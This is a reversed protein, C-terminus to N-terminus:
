LRKGNAAESVLEIFSEFTAVDDPTFLERIVKVSTSQGGRKELLASATAANIRRALDLAQGRTIRHKEGAPNAM